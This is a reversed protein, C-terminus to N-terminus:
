GRSVTDLVVAEEMVREQSGPSLPPLEILPLFFFFFTVQRCAGLHCMKNVNNEGLLARIILDAIVYALFSVDRKISFVFRQDPFGM